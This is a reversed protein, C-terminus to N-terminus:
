KNTEKNAWDLALDNTLFSRMEIIKYDRFTFVDAPDGENWEQKGKLRVKVHVFAIIKDGITVFSHPECTGEAWNNRGKEFHARVDNVGRYVADTSFGFTEVREIQPDFLQFIGDIDNTNLAVYLKKLIEIKSTEDLNHHAM